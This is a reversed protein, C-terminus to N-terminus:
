DAAPRNRAVQRSSTVLGDAKPDRRSWSRARERRPATEQTHSALPRSRSPFSWDPNKSVAYKVFDAGLPNPASGGIRAWGLETGLALGPFIENRPKESPGGPEDADTGHDGTRRHSM